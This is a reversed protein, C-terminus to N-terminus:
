ARLLEYAARIEMFCAQDGGRDPHHQQALKQYRQKIERSTADHPLRLTTLAEQRANGDQQLWFSALLEAVDEETTEYYHQWDLYYDRMPDPHDPLTSRQESGCLSLLQIDLTAINLLLKEEEWLSSQLQYLGNMMLFNKKFLGLEGDDLAAFCTHGSLSALLHHIGFPAQEPQQVNQKLVALIDPILPNQM